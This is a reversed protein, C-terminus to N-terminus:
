NVLVEIPESAIGNTVVELLSPGKEQNAPVDFLATAPRDSAVAMSSFDHTRSYFVHHTLHNTIRVLPFNTAAQWDDGEVAGQSVGNLYVGRVIYTKGPSVEHPAELVSPAYWPRDDDRQDHHRVTPNYLEIDTDTDFELIQGSPLVVMSIQFGFPSDPIDPEATFDHGDFEFFKTYVLSDYYSPIASILVNGTPLLAVSTDASGFQHDQGNISVSPYTPGASWENRRPDYFATQGKDGTAFVIGNPMLLAPGIEGCPFSTLVVVTNGASSWSGTQQDYLESNGPTYQPTLGFWYDLELDITLVKGNPLLTWGEESNV